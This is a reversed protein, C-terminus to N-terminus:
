LALATPLRNAAANFVGFIELFTMPRNFAVYGYEYGDLFAADNLQRNRSREIAMALFDDHLNEIQKAITTQRYDAVREAAVRLMGLLAGSYKSRFKPNYIPM